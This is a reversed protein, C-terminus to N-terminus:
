CNRKIEFVKDECLVWDVPRDHAERPLGEVIFEAFVVGVTVVDPNAALYRDYYGAGYGLRFGETDIALAPVLIVRQKPKHAAPLLPQTPAPELIQFKNTVLKKGLEWLRFDMTKDNPAIVPLYVKTNFRQLHTCIASIDPESRTSHYVLIENCEPMKANLWGLFTACLSASKAVLQDATLSSRKAKYIDRLQRKDM